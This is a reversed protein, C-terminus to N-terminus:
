FQGEKAKLHNDVENRLKEEVEDVSKRLGEVEVQLGDQKKLEDQHQDAYMQLDAERKSSIETLESHRREELSNM